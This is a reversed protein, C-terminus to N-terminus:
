IQLSITNNIINNKWVDLTDEYVNKWFDFNFQFTKIYDREDRWTYIFIQRMKQKNSTTCQSLKWQKMTYEDKKQNVIGFHFHIYNKDHQFNFSNEIQIASSM